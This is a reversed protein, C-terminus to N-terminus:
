GSLCENRPLRYAISALARHGIFKELTLGSLVKGRYSVRILCCGVDNHIREQFDPKLPHHARGQGENIYRALENQRTIATRQWLIPNNELNQFVGGGITRQDLGDP